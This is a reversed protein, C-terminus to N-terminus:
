TRAVPLRKVMKVVTGGKPPFSYSVEDMFQRMFFIGRGYAKLLNEPALPNPVSDPDFGAGHDHIQVELEKPRLGFSVEVRKAEDMKNGHKMANVVSERVAVSMYHAADDDFGVFTSVHSLVTQVVDLMDFRSAIDLKVTRTDPTTTM